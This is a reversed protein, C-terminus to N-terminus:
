LKEDDEDGEPTAYRQRFGEKARAIRQRAAAPSIGLMTAIEESRFGWLSHLLLAERLTPSLGDLARQIEDREGTRASADPRHLAPLLAGAGASLWELSFTRRLRERRLEGLMRKRAITYLWAAFPRDDTLRDLHRFADVFTDQTIDAALEPDGTQRTLHRLLPAHYREVLGEFAAVSGSRVARVLTGDAPYADERVGVM